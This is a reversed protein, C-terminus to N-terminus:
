TKRKAGRLLDAVLTSIPGDGPMTRPYTTAKSGSQAFLDGVLVQLGRKLREDPFILVPEFEAAIAGPYAHGSRM